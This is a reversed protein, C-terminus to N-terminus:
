RGRGGENGPDLQAREAGCQSRGVPDVSFVGAGYDVTIETGELFDLGVVMAPTENWGFTEFIDLDAVLVSLRSRCMGGVRFRSLDVFRVDEGIRGEVGAVVRRQLGFPQYAREFASNVITRVSGTDVLVRAPGRLQAMRAAGFLVDWEPSVVGDRHEPPPVSLELVGAALDLRVTQRGFANAGLLGQAALQEEPAAPIIVTTLDVPTPGGYDVEDLRFREAEFRTTLSYAEDLDRSSRFGFQEALTQTIATHSAGTDLVFPFPGAGRIEVDIIFHGSQSRALAITEGTATPEQMAAALAAALLLPSM